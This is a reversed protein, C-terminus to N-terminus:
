SLIPSEHPNSGPKCVTAYIDGSEHIIFGRQVETEDEM